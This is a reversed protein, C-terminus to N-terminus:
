PPPREPTAFAARSAFPVLAPVRLGGVSLYQLETAVTEM